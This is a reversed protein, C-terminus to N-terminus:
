IKRGRVKERYFGLKRVGWQLGKPASSGLFMFEYMEVNSMPSQGSGIYNRTDRTGGDVGKFLVASFKNTPGCFM